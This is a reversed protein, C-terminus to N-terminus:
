AASGQRPQRRDTVAAEAPRVSATDYPYAGPKNLRALKWLWDSLMWLLFPRAAESMRRLRTNQFAALHWAGGTRTAVLTQPSWSRIVAWLGNRSPPDLGTTPEDLFLVPPRTTGFSKALGKTRIMVAMAAEASAHPWRRADADPGSPRGELRDGATAQVQVTPLIHRIPIV